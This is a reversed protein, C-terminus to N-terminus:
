KKNDDGFDFDDDLDKWDEDDTEDDDDEEDFDEFEDDDEDFELNAMEELFSNLDFDDDDDNLDSQEPKIAHPPNFLEWEDWYYNTQDFGKVWEIFLLRFHNIEQRIIKVYEHDKFTEHIRLGGVTTYLNMAHYRIIAANQMRISYEDGAEASVIKSSVIMIDELMLHKTSQIYENEDPFTATLGDIMRHLEEAKKFIPLKEIHKFM